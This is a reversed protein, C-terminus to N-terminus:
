KTGAHTWGRRVTDEAAGFSDSRQYAFLKACHSPWCRPCQDFQGLVPGVDREHQVPGTAPLAAADPQGSTKKPTMDNLVLPITLM